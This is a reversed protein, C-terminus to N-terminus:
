GHETQSEDGHSQEPRTEDQKTDEIPHLLSAIIGISLIGAIVSLSAWPPIHFQQALLMKGGIFALMFTLCAQVYRFKHMTASLAFYLSRLGMIAFINSTFVIFPDLTISFIAPISDIAFLVDAGEVALLAVFLMTATQKGNEKIWFEGGEFRNTIPFFKRAVRVLISKDPDVDDHGGFMMKAATYLLLVGFVYMTWSFQEILAGGAGIMVGRLVLAGIIGWFLVRHHFKAPVKFHGLILAIVFINDLSLSKEIVYGTLFQVAATRGDTAYRPDTGLDLWHNEYAFYILVNFLLSLGIWFCTWIISERMRVIHPDKNFVGLDLALMVLIFAIFGLWAFTIM